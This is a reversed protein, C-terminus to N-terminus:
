LHRQGWQKVVYLAWPRSWSTERREFREWVSRVARQDLAAAVAGGMDPDLLTSRVDDRLSGRLWTEFPLTFGMKRRNVVDDPLLDRVSRVLLPKPGSGVKLDAPLRAVLEVLAQDLLPVRVELGHAMSMVDADRLLMNRMFRSLELRSVDNADEVAGDVPLPQRRQPGLLQARLAPELVERQLEYASLPERALWRALKSARDGTGLSARALRHGVRYPVRPLRRRLRELRPVTRFLEYGAFLEDGGLGSLAVTLGASRALGSVVFSNLGDITPQDMAELADPLRRLFDSVGLEIERHDTSWRRSVAEIYRAESYEREAFVVSTTIPSRDVTATLGVLASSDIGGSLFVGV